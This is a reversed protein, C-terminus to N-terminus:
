KDLKTFKSGELTLNYMLGKQGFVFAVIPDKISTTDISGGAGVKILAVSGDVGVEWGKSNLFKTLAEKTLFVIVISKKQVGLQLGISAAATSYYATTKGNIRLAGEGYEGGIGLGAKVVKPFVLYGNAKGLFQGAGTVEKQFQELAVDVSIEIERADAAQGNVPLLALLCLTMLVLICIRSSKAKVNVM